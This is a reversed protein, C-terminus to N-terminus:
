ASRRQAAIAQAVIARAASVSPADLRARIRRWYEDVTEVSVGLAEAIAARKLGQADYALLARQQPSLPLSALAAHLQAADDLAVATPAAQNLLHDLATLLPTYTSPIHM